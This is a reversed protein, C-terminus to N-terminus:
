SKIINTSDVLYVEDSDPEGIITGSKVVVNEMVVANYVKAGEEIVVGSLIVSNKVVADKEVKIENFLVANEMEGYIM